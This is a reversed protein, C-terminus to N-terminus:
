DIIWEFSSKSKIYIILKLKQVAEELQYLLSTKALIIDTARGPLFVSCKDDLELVVTQKLRGFPSRVISLKTVLYKEGDKLEGFRIKPLFQKEGGNSCIENLQSLDMKKKEVKQFDM